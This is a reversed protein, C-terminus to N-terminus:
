DRTAVRVLEAGDPEGKASRAPYRCASPGTAGCQKASKEDDRRERIPGEGGVGDILAADDITWAHRQSRDSPLDAVDLIKYPKGAPVDKRAIADIGYTAVAEPAPILISLGGDDNKYAIRLTTM